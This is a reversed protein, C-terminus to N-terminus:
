ARAKNNGSKGGGLTVFYGKKLDLGGRPERKM